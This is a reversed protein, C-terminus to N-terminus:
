SVVTVAKWEAMAQLRHIHTALASRKSCPSVFLNRLSSFISLLTATSRTISAKCPGSQNESRCMRMRRGAHEAGGDIRKGGDNSGIGGTNADNAPQVPREAHCRIPRHGALWSYPFQRRTRSQCPVVPQTKPGSRDPRLVATVAGQLLSLMARRRFGEIDLRTVDQSAGSAIKLNTRQSPCHHLTATLDCAPKTLCVRRQPM